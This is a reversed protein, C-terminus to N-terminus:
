GTVQASKGGFVDNGNVTYPLSSGTPTLIGQGQESGVYRYGGAVAVFPDASGSQGGFVAQGQYKTNALDKLQSLMADVIQAQAARQDSTATTGVMSNAISQANVVLSSVQGLTSDAQG